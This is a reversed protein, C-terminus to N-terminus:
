GLVHQFPEFFVLSFYLILQVLLNFPYPSISTSFILFDHLVMEFARSNNVLGCRRVTRVLVTDSFSRVSGDNFPDLGNKRFCIKVFSEPHLQSVGDDVEFITTWCTCNCSRRVFEPVTDFRGYSM